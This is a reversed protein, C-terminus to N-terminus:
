GQKLVHASVNALIRRCLQAFPLCKLHPNSSILLDRYVKDTAHWNTCSIPCLIIGVAIAASKAIWKWFKHRLQIEAMPFVPKMLWDLVKKMWCANPGQNKNQEWKAEQEAQQYKQFSEFPIVNKHGKPQKQKQKYVMGLYNSWQSIYLCRLDIFVCM